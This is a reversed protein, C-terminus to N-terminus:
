PREGTHIRQHVVLDQRQRFSMGCELCKQLKEGDHLQEHVGLELSQSSRWGGEQ